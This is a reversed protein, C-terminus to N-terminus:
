GTSDVQRLDRSSALKALQRLPPREAEEAAKQTVAKPVQYGHRTRMHFKLTMEMSTSYGCLKCTYSLKRQTRESGAPSDRGEEAMSASLPPRPLPPAGPFTTSRVVRPNKLMLREERHVQALHHLASLKHELEDRIEKEHESESNWFDSDRGTSDESAPPTIDRFITDPRPSWMMLM